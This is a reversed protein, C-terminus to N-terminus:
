DPRRCALWLSVVVRAHFLDGNQHRVALVIGDAAGATIGRCGNCGAVERGVGTRRHLGLADDDVGDAEFQIIDRGLRDHIGTCGITALRIERFIASLKLGRELVNSFADIAQSQGALNGVLNSSNEGLSEISIFM